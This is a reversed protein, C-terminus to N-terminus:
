AEPGILVKGPIKYAAALLSIETLGDGTVFLPTFHPMQQHSQIKDNPFLGSKLLYFGLEYSIPDFHCQNYFKCLCLGEIDRM